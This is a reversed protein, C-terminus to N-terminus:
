GSRLEYFVETELEAPNEHWDGYIEWRIGTIDHGESTCWSRVARHADNLQDYPGRHVTMATPGAPLTSAVVRGVPDFSGSVQVGVEVNPVDDRSLMINHGDQTVVGTRVVGYDEDLLRGWVSPFEQWTTAQAVVAM